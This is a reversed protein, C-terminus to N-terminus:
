FVTMATYLSRASERWPPRSLKKQLRRRARNKSMCPVHLADHGGNAVVDTGSLVWVWDIFRRSRSCRCGKRLAHSCFWPLTEELCMRGSRSCRFYTSSPKTRTCTHVTLCAGFGFVAPCLQWVQTANSHGQKRGLSDWVYICSM